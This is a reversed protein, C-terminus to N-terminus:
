NGRMSDDQPLRVEGTRGLLAIEHRRKTEAPDPDDGLELAKSLYPKVMRFGLLMEEPLEDESHGELMLCLDATLTTAYGKFISLISGAVASTNLDVDIEIQRHFTLMQPSLHFLLVM